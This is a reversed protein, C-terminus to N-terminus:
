NEVDELIEVEENEVTTESEDVITFWSNKVKKNLSRKKTPYGMSDFLGKIMKPTIEMNSRSSLQEIIEEYSLSSNYLDKIEQQSKFSVM